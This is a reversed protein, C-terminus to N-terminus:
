SLKLSRKLGVIMKQVENIKLILDNLEDSSIYSLDFVAIAQSELECALGQAVDLFHALQPNTGRGCGEAINSSISIACGRMQRSLGYMEEQPFSQSTTYIDVIPVRAKQWVKLERFNHM